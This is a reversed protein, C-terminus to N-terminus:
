TSIESIKSKIFYLIKFAIFPIAIAIFFSILGFCVISLIGIVATTFSTLYTVLSDVATAYVLVGSLGSVELSQLNQIVNSLDDIWGAVLNSNETYVQYLKGIMYSFSAVATFVIAGGSLFFTALGKLLGVLYTGILALVKAM